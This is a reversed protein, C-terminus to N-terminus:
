ACIWAARAACGSKSAFVQCSEGSAHGSVAAALHLLQLRDPRRAQLKVLRQLGKVQPRGRALVQEAVLREQRRPDGVVQVAALGRREDLMRAVGPVAPGKGGHQPGVEQQRLVAKDIVSSSETGPPIPRM